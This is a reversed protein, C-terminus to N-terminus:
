QVILTPIIDLLIWGRACWKKMLRESTQTIRKVVAKRRTEARQNEKWAAFRAKGSDNLKKFKEEYRTKQADLAKRKSAYGAEKAKKVKELMKDAYTGKATRMEFHADRMDMFMDVAMEDMTAAFENVVQPQAYKVLDFLETIQDGENVNAELMGNAAATIDGWQEDLSLRANDRIDLMGQVSRRFEGYSMGTVAKIEAKQADTLHFSIAKLAKRVPEFTEEHATDMTQSDNLIERALTIGLQRIYADNPAPRMMERYMEELVDAIIDANTTSSYDKKLQRAYKEIDRRDNSFEATPKMQRNLEAIIDDQQNIREKLEANAEILSNIEAAEKSSSIAEGIIAEVNTKHLGRLQNRKEADDNLSFEVKTEEGTERERNRNTEGLESLGQRYGGADRQSRVIVRELESTDRFVAELRRGDGTKWILRPEEGFGVDNNRWEAYNFIGSEAFNKFSRTAKQGISKLYSLSLYRGEEAFRSAARM